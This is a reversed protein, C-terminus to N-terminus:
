PRGAVADCHPSRYRLASSGRTRPLAALLDRPCQRMGGDNPRALGPKRERLFQMGADACHIFHGPDPQTPIARRQDTFRAAGMPISARATTLALRMDVECSEVRCVDLTRASLPSSLSLVELIAIYRSSKWSATGREVSRLLFIGCAADRMGRQWGPLTNEAPSEGEIRIRQFSVRTM